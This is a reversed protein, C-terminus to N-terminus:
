YLMGHLMGHPTEDTGRLLMLKHIAFPPGGRLLMLKHVAFPPGGRLLMLKHVVFPPGGRLHMLKHAEAHVQFIFCMDISKWFLLLYRNRVAFSQPWNVLFGLLKAAFLFCAFFRVKLANFHHFSGSIKVENKNRDKKHKYKRTRSYM